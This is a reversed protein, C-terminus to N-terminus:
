KKKDKVYKEEMKQLGTTMKAKIEERETKMESKLQEQRSIM